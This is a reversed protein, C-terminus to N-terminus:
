LQRVGAVAVLREERLEARPAAEVPRRVRHGVDLRQEELAEEGGATRFLARALTIDGEVLANDAAVLHRAVIEALGEAVECAVKLIVVSPQVPGRKLRAELTEGELQRIVLVPDKHTYVVM